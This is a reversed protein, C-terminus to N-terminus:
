SAASDLPDSVGYEQMAGEVFAELDDLSLTSKIEEYHPGLLAKVLDVMAGAAMDPDSISRIPELAEFPLEPPLHYEKGGFRLIPGEGKGERRAARAADLDITM